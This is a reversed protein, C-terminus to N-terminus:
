SKATIGTLKKINSLYFPRKNAKCFKHSIIATPNKLYKETKRNTKTQKTTIKPADKFKPRM